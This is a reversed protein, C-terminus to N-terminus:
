SPPPGPIHFSIRGVPFLTTTSVGSEIIYEPDTGYRSLTIRHSAGPFFLEGLLQPFPWPDTTEIGWVACLAEHLATSIVGTLANLTWGSTLFGDATVFWSFDLEAYAIVGVSNRHTTLRCQDSMELPLTQTAESLLDDVGFDSFQVANSVISELEGLNFSITSVAGQLDSVSSQIGGVPIWTGDPGLGLLDNEVAGAVDVDTLDDLAPAEVRVFGGTTYPEFIGADEGKRFLIRGVLKGHWDALEPAPPIPILRAEEIKNAQNGGYVAIIEQDDGITRWIFIASHWNNTMEVLDTGDDFHTNPWAWDGVYETDEYVGSVHKYEHVTHLSSDFPLVSVQRHGFFVEGGTMM